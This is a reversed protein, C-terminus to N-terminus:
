ELRWVKLGDVGNETADIPLFKWGKAWKKGAFLRIRQYVDGRLTTLATGRNAAVAEVHAPIFVSDGPQMEKWPVIHRGMKTKRVGLQRPTTPAAGNKKVQMTM